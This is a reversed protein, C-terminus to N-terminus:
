SEKAKKEYIYAALEFDLTTDIDITVVDDFPMYFPKMGIHYKTKEITERKLLFASWLIEYIKPLDQSVKHWYGFNFNIPIGSEHVIHHRITKVAIISDYGNKQVENWQDIMRVIQSHGFLPNTVQIWLIDADDHPINALFNGILDPQKVSNGTLCEPRKVYNFNYKELIPVVEESESSVFIDNPRIGAKILQQAKIDFLSLGRYFPRINKKKVRTSALQLPILVKLNKSM